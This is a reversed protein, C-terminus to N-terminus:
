TYKLKDWLSNFIDDLDLFLGPLPSPPVTSILCAWGLYLKLPLFSGFSDGVFGDSRDTGVGEESRVFATEGFLTDEVRVFLLLPLGIAITPAEDLDCDSLECGLWRALTLDIGSRM